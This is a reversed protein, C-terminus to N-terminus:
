GKRQVNPETLIVGFFRRTGQVNGLIIHGARAFADAKTLDATGLVARGITALKRANRVLETKCDGAWLTAEIAFGEALSLLENSLAIRDTDVPTPM